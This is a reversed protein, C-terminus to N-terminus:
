DLSNQEYFLVYINIRTVFSRLEKPLVHICYICSIIILNSAWQTRSILSVVVWQLFSRELKHELHFYAFFLVKHGKTYSHLAVYNQKDWFDTGKGSM